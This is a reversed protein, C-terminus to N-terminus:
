NSKTENTRRRKAEIGRKISESLSQSYFKQLAIGIENKFNTKIKM